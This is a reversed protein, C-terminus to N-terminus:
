RAPCIKWYWPMDHVLKVSGKEVFTKQVYKTMESRLNWRLTIIVRKHTPENRLPIEHIRDITGMNMNNIKNYIYERQTNTDIRPICISSYRNNNM